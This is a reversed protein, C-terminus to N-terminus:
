SVGESIKRINRLPNRAKGETKRVKSKVKRFKIEAQSQASM